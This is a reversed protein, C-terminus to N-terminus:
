CKNEKKLINECTSSIFSQLQFFCETVRKLIYSPHSKLEFAYDSIASRSISFKHTMDNRLSNVYTYNGRWAGDMIDTDDEEM